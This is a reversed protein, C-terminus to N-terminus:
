RRRKAEAGGDKSDTSHNATTHRATRASRGVRRASISGCGDDDRGPEWRRGADTEEMDAGLTDAEPADDPPEASGASTAAM